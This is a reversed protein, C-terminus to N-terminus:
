SLVAEEVLAAASKSVAPAIATFHFWSVDKLIEDLDV